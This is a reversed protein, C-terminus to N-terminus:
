VPGNKPGGQILQKQFYAVFHLNIAKDVFINISNQKQKVLM